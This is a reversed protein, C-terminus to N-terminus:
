IALWVFIVMAVALFTLITAAVDRNPAIGLGTGNCSQCEHVRGWLLSLRYGSGSCQHCIPRTSM